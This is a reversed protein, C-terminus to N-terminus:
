WHNISWSKLVQSIKQFLNLKSDEFYYPSGDSKLREGFNYSQFHVISNTEINRGEFMETETEYGVVKAKIPSGGFHSVVRYEGLYCMPNQYDKFESKVLNPKTM